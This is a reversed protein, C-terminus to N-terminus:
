KEDNEYKLNDDKIIHERLQKGRKIRKILRNQKEIITDSYVENVLRSRWKMVFLQQIMLTVDAAEEFIAYEDNENHTEINRKYKQVAKILEACEEVLIDLQIIKGFTEVAQRLLDHDIKEEIM